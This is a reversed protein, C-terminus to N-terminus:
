KDLVKKFAEAFVKPNEKVHVGFYHSLSSFALVGCPGELSM